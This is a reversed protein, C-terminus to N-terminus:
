IGVLKSEDYKKNELLKKLEVPSIVKKPLKQNNNFLLFSTLLFLLVFVWITNNNKLM